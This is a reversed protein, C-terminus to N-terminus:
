EIPHCLALLHLPLYLVCKRQERSSTRVLCSVFSTDNRKEMVHVDRLIGSPHSHDEIASSSSLAIRVPIYPDLTTIFPSYKSSYEKPLSIFM